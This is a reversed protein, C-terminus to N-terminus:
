AGPGTNHDEECEPNYRPIPYNEEVPEVFGGLRHGDHETFWALAATSEAELDALPEIKEAKCGHCWFHWRRGTM